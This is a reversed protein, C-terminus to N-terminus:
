RLFFLFLKCNLAFYNPFLHLLQQLSVQLSVGAKQPSWGAGARGGGVAFWPQVWCLHTGPAKGGLGVTLPSRKRQGIISSLLLSEPNIEKTTKPTGAEALVPCGWGVAPLSVPHAVWVWAPRAGPSPGKGM